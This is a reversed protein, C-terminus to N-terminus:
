IQNIKNGAYRRNWLLAATEEVTSSREKYGREDTAPMVPPTACFCTRCRVRRGDEFLGSCAVIEAEGGCFPCELLNIKSM